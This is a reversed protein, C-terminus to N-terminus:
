LKLSDVFKLAKEVTVDSNYHQWEGWRGIGIVSHEKTWSLLDQMIIPKDMTNLPYAYDNLYTLSRAHHHTSSWAWNVVAYQFVM